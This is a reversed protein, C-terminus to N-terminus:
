VRIYTLAKKFVEVDADALNAHESLYRRYQRAGPLGSFLGLVHRSIHHLRTGSKVEEEIYSLLAQAAAMPSSLPSEDKFLCTDVSGLMWPNQYAERGIM